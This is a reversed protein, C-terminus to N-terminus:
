SGSICQIQELRTTVLVKIRLQAPAKFRPANARFLARLEQREHLSFRCARCFSVHRGIELKWDSELEGDLYADLFCDAEECNMRCNAVMERRLHECAGHRFGQPHKTEEQRYNAPHQKKFTGWAENVISSHSAESGVTGGSRRLVVGATTPFIFVPSSKLRKSASHVDTKWM